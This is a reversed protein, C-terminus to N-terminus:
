KARLEAAPTAEATPEPCAATEEPTEATPSKVPPTATGAGEALKLTAAAIARKQYVKLCAPEEGAPVANDSGGGEANSEGSFSRRQSGSGKVVCNTLVLSSLILGLLPAKSEFIFPLLRTM